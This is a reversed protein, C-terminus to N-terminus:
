PSNEPAVPTTPPPPEVTPAAQADPSSTPGSAPQPAPDPETETGTSRPMPEPEPVQVPPPQPAPDPRIDADPSDDGSPPAAAGPASAEHPQPSPHLDDPSAISTLIHRGTAPEMAFSSGQGLEVLTVERRIRQGDVFILSEIFEQFGPHAVRLELPTGPPTPDMFVKEPGQGAARDNLLITAGPPDMTVRLLTRVTENTQPRIWGTPDELVEYRVLGVLVLLIVAFMAFAIHSIRRKYADISTAWREGHTTSITVRARGSRGPLRSPFVRLEIQQSDRKLHLTRPSVQLWPQSSAVNARLRGKGINRVRVTRVVPRMFLGLTIQEPGKVELEPGHKPRAPSGPTGPQFTRRGLHSSPRPATENDSPDLRPPLPPRTPEPELDEKKGSAWGPKGLRLESPAETRDQTDAAPTSSSEADRRMSDPPAARLAPPVRPPPEAPKSAELIRRRKDDYDRRRSIDSLIRWAQELQQYIENARQLDKLTRAWRYRERYAEEIEEATAQPSTALLKYYDIFNGTPSAPEAQDPEEFLSEQDDILGVKDELYRSTEAETLGMETAQRRIAAESEASLRGSVLSGQVFLDLMQLKRDRERASVAEVYAKMGQVLVRHVLANNKILWLAQYRFKPNAQQAQAWSRKSKIRSEVDSTSADPAIGYYELLSAQGVDALFADIQQLDRADM